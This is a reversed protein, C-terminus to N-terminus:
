IIFRMRLCKHCTSDCLGLQKLKEPNFVRNKSYVFKAQGEVLSHMGERGLIAALFNVCDKYNMKVISKLYKILEYRYFHGVHKRSIIHKMTDCFDDMGWGYNKLIEEADPNDKLEVILKKREIKDKDIKFGDINFEEEGYLFRQGIRPSNSLTCIGGWGLDLEEEKLPICFRRRAPKFNFSNVVRMMRGTDGIVTPDIVLGAKDQVYFMADRLKLPHGKALLVGYFGGGSFIYQRGYNHKKCWNRFNRISKLGEKSYHQKEGIKEFSDLDFVIKNIVATTYDPGIRKFDGNRYYKEESERYWYISHYINSYQKYRNIDKRAEKKNDFM